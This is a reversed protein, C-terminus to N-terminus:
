GATYICAIQKVQNPDTFEVSERARAVTYNHMCDSLQKMGKGRTSSTCIFDGIEINGSEGCVNILGEGISNVIAVLSGNLGGYKEHSENPEVVEVLVGLAKKDLPLTSIEVLGLTDSLGLKHVMGVDVVIDGPVYYENKSIIGEHFGTFTGVNDEFKAYGSGAPAWISYTGLAGGIRPPIYISHSGAISVERGTASNSIIGGAFSSSSVQAKFAVAASSLIQVAPQTTNSSNIYVASNNSTSTDQILVAPLLTTGTRSISIARDPQGLVVETNSGKFRIGYASNCGITGNIYLKSGDYVFSGGDASTLQNASGLAFTGSANFQAGSGTMTGSAAISATGVQVSGAFKGVGASTVSFPASAFSAAGSWMNGASDVHWSTAGSGADINGTVTLNGTNATIANLSGVKLSSWYPISWAITGAVPDFVGDTQYMYEGSNLAPVTFQWVAGTLGGAGTAPKTTKYNATTVGTSNPIATSTSAISSAAYVTVYSGGQLGNYGNVLRAANTWNITSSNATGVDSIQVRAEWITFGPSSFNPDASSTLYWTVPGSGTPTPTFTKTAWDYTSSGTPMNPPSVSALYVSATAFKQGAPGTEGNRGNASIVTSPTTSAWNVTTTTAGNAATVPRSAVWLVLGPTNPNTGSTSSWLGSANALGTAWTYMGNTDTPGAPTPSAVDWKYLYATANQNGTPGTAGNLTTPYITVTGTGWNVSTTTAAATDSVLKDARWLQMGATGPNAAPSTLWLASGTAMRGTVWDFNGTGAPAVAPQAISWQYLSATNFKNGDTGVQAVISPASWATNPLMEVNIAPTTTRAHQTIVYVPNGATATPQTLSWNAVAVQSSNSSSITNTLFNYYTTATPRTTTFGYLQINDRSEASAGSSGSVAEVIPTTWTGGTVTATPAGSFSFSTAYTPSTTTSPQSVVWTVGAGTPPTLISTAFNYSGGTIAVASPATTQYYAFVTATYSGNAFVENVIVPSSWAGDAGMAVSTAPTTTKAVQKIMYVPTGVSAAPRTLSWNSVTSVSGSSTSITKNNFNYYTTVSPRTTTTGYLQVVDMFEGGMEPIGHIAEIAAASWTGGSVPTTSTGASGSYSFSTMYTIPKTTSTNPETAVWTVGGGSPPTLSQSSNTYAGGTIASSNPIVSQYYVTAVYSSSGSPGQSGLNGQLSKSITFRKTVSSYGSRTATIDVYGSSTGAPMATITVTNSAISSTVGSDVKSFSWGNANDNTIGNFINLSCVAGAFSIVNGSSDATLTHSENTLVGNITDIGDFLRVITASDSLGDKTVSITVSNSGMNGYTINRMDGTGTLVAGGSASFVATSGGALNSGMATLNISAPTIGGAKDVKFTLSSASLTLAKGPSGTAGVEAVKVPTTWGGTVLLVDTAPTTTKALQSIMYVPTGLVATPQTLSWNTISTTGPTTPTSTGISNSNFNYFVNVAPVTTTTGYLEIIDRYEGNTGPGGNVTEVIPTTWTGGSITSSPSGSFTYKTSYTPTTTSAPQTASWTVGVGGGTPPTITGNSFNYSGGSPSTPVTSGQYYVIAVLTSNGDAGSKVKSLNFALDIVMNGYAAPLTARFIASANNSTIGTPVYVGTTANISVSCGVQSGAVVSYSVSNGTTIDITGAFVKFTGGSAALVPGPVTNTTDAPMSINPVTLEARVAQKAALITRLNKEATYVNSINTALIARDVITINSLDNWGVPAILLDLFDTLVTIAADYAVKETTISYTTASAGLNTQTNLIVSYESILAPKEEMSLFDKSTRVGSAQLFKDRSNVAIVM